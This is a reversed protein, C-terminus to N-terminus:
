SISVSWLMISKNGFHAVTRVCGNDDSSDRFVQGFSNIPNSRTGTGSTSENTPLQFLKLVADSFGCQVEPIMTTSLNVMPWNM